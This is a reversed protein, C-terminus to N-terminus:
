VRRVGGSLGDELQVGLADGCLILCLGTCSVKQAMDNVTGRLTKGYHSQVWLRVDLLSAAAIPM